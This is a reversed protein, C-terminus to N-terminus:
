TSFPCSPSPFSDSSGPPWFSQSNPRTPPGRLTTAFCLCEIIKLLLIVIKNKILQFIIILIASIVYLSASVIPIVFSTGEIASDFAPIVGACIQLILYFLYEFLFILLSYKVVKVFNIKIFENKKLFFVTNKAIKKLLDKDFPKKEDKKLPFHDSKTPTDMKTLQLQQRETDALMDFNNLDSKSMNTQM